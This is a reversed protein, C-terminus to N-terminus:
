KTMKQGVPVSTKAASFLFEDPDTFRSRALESRRTAVKRGGPHSRPLSCLLLPLLAIGTVAVTNEGGIACSRITAPASWRNRQQERAIPSTKKTEKMKRTIELVFRLAVRRATKRPGSVASWSTPTHSARCAGRYHVWEDFELWAALSIGSVIFLARRVGSRENSCGSITWDVNKCLRACHPICFFHGILFKHSLQSFFNYHLM